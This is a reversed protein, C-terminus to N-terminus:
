YDEDVPDVSDIYISEDEWSEPSGLIEQQWDYDYAIREAEAQNKANVVVTFEVTVNVEYENSKM